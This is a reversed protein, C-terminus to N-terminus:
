RKSWDPVAERERKDTPEMFRLGNGFPDPVTMIRGFPMDEPAPVWVAPPLVKVTSRAENLSRHLADVGRMWIGVTSGPYPDYSDESLHLTTGNRSVQGFFSSGAGNSDGGWDLQFGLFDVYFAIALEVSFIRFVPVTLNGTSFPGVDGAGSIRSLKNTKASLVNWSDHGFMRATIELSESHSLDLHRREALESSLTKAMIKADRFTRMTQEESPSCDM